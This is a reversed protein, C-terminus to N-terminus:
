RHFQFKCGDSQCASKGDRGLGLGFDLPPMRHGGDVALHHVVQGFVEVGALALVLDHRHKLAAIVFGESSGHSRVTSAICRVNQLHKLDAGGGHHGTLAHGHRYALDHFVRALLKVGLGIHRSHGTVVGRGAALHQAKREVARGRHKVEVFVGELRSANVGCFCGTGPGFHCQGRGLELGTAVFARDADGPLAPGLQLAERGPVVDLESGLAVAQLPQISAHLDVRRQVHAM